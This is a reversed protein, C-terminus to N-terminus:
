FDEGWGLRKGKDLDVNNIIIIVVPCVNRLGLTQQKFYCDKHTDERNNNLAFLIYYFFVMFPVSIM